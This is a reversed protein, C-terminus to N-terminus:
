NTAINVNFDVMSITQMITQCNIFIAIFSHSGLLCLIKRIGIKPIKFLPIFVKGFKFGFIETREM